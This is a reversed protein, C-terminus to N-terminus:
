FVYRSLKQKIQPLPGNTPWQKEEVAAQAYNTIFTKGRPFESEDHLLTKCTKSFSLCLKIGRIVGGM